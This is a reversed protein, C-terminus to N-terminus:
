YNELRSEIDYYFADYSKITSSSRRSANGFISNSKKLYCSHLSSGKLYFDTCFGCKVYQTQSNDSSSYTSGILVDEDDIIM